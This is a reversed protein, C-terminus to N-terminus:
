RGAAGARGAASSAALREARFLLRGAGARRPPLLKRRRTAAHSNESLNSSFNGRKRPRRFAGSPLLRIHIQVEFRGASEPRFFIEVAQAPRESRHTGGEAAGLRFDSRDAFILEIFSDVAGQVTEEGQLMLFAVPDEVQLRIGGDRRFVDQQLAEQAARQGGVQALPQGTVQAAPLQGVAAPREVLPAEGIEASRDLGIESELQGAIRGIRRMHDPGAQENEAQPPRGPDVNEGADGQRQEPLHGPAGDRRYRHLDNKKGAPEEEIQALDGVPRPGHHHRQQDKIGPLRDATQAGLLHQRFQEDIGRVAEIM